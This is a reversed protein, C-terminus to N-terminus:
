NNFTLKTKTGGLDIAIIHNVGDAGKNIEVASQEFKRDAPQVTGTVRVAKNNEDRLVATTGDVKVSYDGGKLQNGAVESHDPVIISYSKASAISIGAATFLFLLKTKTKM